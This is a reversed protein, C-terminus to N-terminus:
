SAEKRMRIENLKTIIDDEQRRLEEESIEDLQFLTQIRLLEEKLKSEDTVEAEALEQIKRFIGLLGKAPLLLVDDLLFM